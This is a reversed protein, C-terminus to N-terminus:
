LYSYKNRIRQSEIDQSLAYARVGLDGGDRVGRDHSLSLHLRLHDDYPRARPAKLTRM